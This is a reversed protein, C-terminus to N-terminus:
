FPCMLQNAENAAYYNFDYLFSYRQRLPARKKIKTYRNDL